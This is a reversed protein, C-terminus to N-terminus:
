HSATLQSPIAVMVGSLLSVAKLRACGFAHKRVVKTENSWLSRLGIM